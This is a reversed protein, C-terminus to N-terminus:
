WHTEKRIRHGSTGESGEEGSTKKARRLVSDKVQRLDLCLEVKKM